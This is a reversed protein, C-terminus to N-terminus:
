RTRSAPRSCQASPTPTPSSASAGGCSEQAHESRRASVGAPEDRHRELGAAIQRLRKEVRQAGADGVQALREALVDRGRARVDRRRPRARARPPPRRGRPGKIMRRVGARRSPSREGARDVDARASSSCPARRRRVRSSAGGGRERREIRETLERERRRVAGSSTSRQRRETRPVRARRAHAVQEAARGAARAAAIVAARKAEGRLRDVGRRHDAGRGRRDAAEPAREAARVAASSSSRASSNESWGAASERGAARRALTEALKRRGAAGARRPLLSARRRVPAGGRRPPLDFRGSEPRGASSSPRRATEEAVRLRRRGRGAFSRTSAAPRAGPSRARRGRRARLRDARGGLARAGTPDFRSSSGAAVAARRAVGAVLSRAAPGAGSVAGCSCAAASVRDGPSSSRSSTGPVPGDYPSDQRRPAPRRARASRPGRGGRPRPSATAATSGVSGARRRRARGTANSVAAPLAAPEDAVAPPRDCSRLRTRSATVIAASQSTASLAPPRRGRPAARAARRAGAAALGARSRPPLPPAAPARARRRRAAAARRAPARSPTPAARPPELQREARPRTRREGGRHAARAVGDVLQRALDLATRGRDGSASRESCPLRSRSGTRRRGPPDAERAARTRPAAPRTPAPPAARATRSASGSCPPRASRRPARASAARRAREVLLRDRQPVRHAHEEGLRHREDLAARWPKM